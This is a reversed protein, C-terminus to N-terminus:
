RTPPWLATLALTRTIAAVWWSRSCRTRFAREAFVQEVAEVHDAQAQRRQALAAFVHGHQRAVEQLLAGLLQAHLGLADGVRRQRPQPTRKGPLTRWSSFMQWQSVTIAGACTISAWPGAARVPAPPAAGTPAATRASGTPAGPPRQFLADGHRQSAM